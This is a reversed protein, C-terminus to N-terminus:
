ENKYTTSVFPLKTVTANRFTGRVSVLVKSDLAHLPPKVYAMSIAKKLCPSMTGSTM